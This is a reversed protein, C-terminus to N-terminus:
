WHNKPNGGADVLLSQHEIFVLDKAQVLFTSEESVFENLARKKANENAALFDRTEFCADPERALYSKFGDDVIGAEFVHTVRPGSTLDKLFKFANMDSLTLKVGDADSEGAPWFQGLDITGFCELLGKPMVVSM